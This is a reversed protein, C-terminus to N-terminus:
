NNKTNVLLNWDGIRSYDEISMYSVSNASIGYVKGDLDVSQSYNTISIDKIKFGENDLLEITFGVLDHKFPLESEVDLQYMIDNEFYKTRLKGNYSYATTDIRWDKMKSYEVELKQHKNALVIEQIAFRFPVFLLILFSAISSILFLKNLIKSEEQKYNLGFRNAILFHLIFYVPIFLAIGILRDDGEEEIIFITLTAIVSITTLLSLIGLIKIYNKM